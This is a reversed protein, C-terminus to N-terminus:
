EGYPVWINKIQTARRLFLRGQSLNPDCWDREGSFVWTQKLNGGSLREVETAMEHHGACWLGDVNDHRALEKALESRSGTIINVVGAPVDSTELVQYFDTAALPAGESPIVV